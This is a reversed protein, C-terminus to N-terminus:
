EGIQRKFLEEEERIRDIEAAIEPTVEKLSLRVLRALESTSHQELVSLVTAMRARDMAEPTGYRRRSVTGDRNLLDEVIVHQMM